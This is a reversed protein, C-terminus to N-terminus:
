ERKKLDYLFIRHTSSTKWVPIYQNGWQTLMEEYFTKRLHNYMPIKSTSRARDITVNHLIEPLHIWPFQAALRIIMRADEFYRGQWPDNTIWGGVSRVCSTRYCRPNVMYGLKLLLDYKDKFHPQIVPQIFVLEYQENYEWFQHNAYAFAASPQHELATVLKQAAQPELWDDGDLQLFYPTTIRELATNLVKSIGLNEQLSIIHLRPDSMFEELQMISQDTSADDVVLISSPPLTQTLASKVARYLHLEKNFVPIVITYEM